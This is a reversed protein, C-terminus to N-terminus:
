PKDPQLVDDCYPHTEEEGSPLVNPHKGDSLRPLTTSITGQHWELACDIPAFEKPLLEKYPQLFHVAEDLPM